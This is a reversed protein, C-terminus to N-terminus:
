NLLKQSWENQLKKWAAFYATEIPLLLPVGFKHVDPVIEEVDVM